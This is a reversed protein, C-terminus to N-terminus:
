LEGGDLFFDYKGTDEEYDLDGCDIFYPFRELREMTNLVDLFANYTRVRDRENVQRRSEYLERYYENKVREDENAIRTNENAIRKNENAIRQNENKVRIKEAEIREPESEAAWIAKELYTWEDRSQLVQDDLVGREVRYYFEKTVSVERSTGKHFVIMIEARHTGALVYAQKSLTFQVQGNKRNPFTADNQLVLTQDPKEINLRVEAGTLDFPYQGRTIQINFVATNLDNTKISAVPTRRRTDELLDLTFTFIKM